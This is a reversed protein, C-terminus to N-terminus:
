VSLITILRACKIAPTGFEGAEGYVNRYVNRVRQMKAIKRQMEKEEQIKFSFTSFIFFQTRVRKEFMVRRKVVTGAFSDRCMFIFEGRLAM